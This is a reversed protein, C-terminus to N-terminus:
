ATFLTTHKMGPDFENALSDLALLKQRMKNRGLNVLQHEGANRLLRWDKGGLQCALGKMRWHHKGFRAKSNEHNM